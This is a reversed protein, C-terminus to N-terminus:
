CNCFGIVYGRMARWCKKGNSSIPTFDDEWTKENECTVIICDFLKAFLTWRKLWQVYKVRLFVSIISLITTILTAFFVTDM